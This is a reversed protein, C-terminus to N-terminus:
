TVKFNAPDNWIVDFQTTTMNHEGVCVKGRERKEKKERSGRRTKRKRIRRKPRCFLGSGSFKFSDWNKIWLKEKLQSQCKEIFSPSLRSMRPLFIRGERKYWMMWLFIFTMVFFCVSLLMGTHSWYTTIFLFYKMFSALYTIKVWWHPFM